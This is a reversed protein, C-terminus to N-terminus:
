NFKQIFQFIMQQPPHPGVWWLLDIKLPPHPGWRGQFHNELKELFENLEMFYNVVDFPPIQVMLINHDISGSFFVVFM